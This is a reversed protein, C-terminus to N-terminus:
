IDPLERMYFTETLHLASPVYKRALKMFERPETEPLSMWVLNKEEWKKDLIRLVDTMWQDEDVLESSALDENPLREHYRLSAM